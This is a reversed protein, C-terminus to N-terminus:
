PRHPRNRGTASSAYHSALGLGGLAMYIMALVVLKGTDAFIFSSYVLAGLGGGRGSAFEGGLVFAWSALSLWGLAPRVAWWALPLHIAMVRRHWVTRAWANVADFEAVTQFAWVFASAFVAFTAFTVVGTESRPFKFIFLPVLAFLPCARLVSALARNGVLAFRISHTMALLVVTLATGALLSCLYAGGSVLLGRGLVALAPAYGETPVDGFLGFSPLSSRVLTLPGPITTLAEALQWIISLGVLGAIALATRTLPYAKSMTRPQDM